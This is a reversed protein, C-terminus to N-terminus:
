QPKQCAGTAAMAATGGDVGNSGNGVESGCFDKMVMRALAAATAVKGATAATGTM